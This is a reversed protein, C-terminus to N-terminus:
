RYKVNSVHWLFFCAFFDFEFKCASDHKTCLICHEYTLKRNADTFTWQKRNEMRENRKRKRMNKHNKGKGNKNLRRKSWDKMNVKQLENTKKKEYLYKCIFQQNRRFTKMISFWLFFSACICVDDMSSTCTESNSINNGHFIMSNETSSFFFLSCSFWKSSLIPHRYYQKLFLGHYPLAFPRRHVIAALFFHFLNCINNNGDQSCWSFRKDINKKYAWCNKNEMRDVASDNFIAWYSQRLIQWRM